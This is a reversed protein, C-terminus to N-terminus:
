KDEQQISWHVSNKMKSIFSNNVMGKTEHTLPTHISIIDSITLLEELQEVQTSKKYRIVEEQSIHIM